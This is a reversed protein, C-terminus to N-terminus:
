IWSFTEKSPIHVTKISPFTTNLWQKMWQMGSEESIIHGLVLLSTVGGMRQLDRVYECTEWEHVEGVILLDPKENAIAQMQPIGGVHGPLLIIKKCSESLNGVYRIHNANLKSKAHHIINELSSGPINLVHPNQANYYGDWELAQLTGMLVGDPTHSHLSDHCRWVIINYKNLLSRKYNYLEDNALWDTADNGTYFTPEHAIIFNAGADTAQEIVEITAFMTTVIGKVKQSADGAKIGDVSNPFPAGPVTKIFSDIIQQITIEDNNAFGAFSAKPFIDFASAMTAAAMATVFQRRKWNNNETQSIM